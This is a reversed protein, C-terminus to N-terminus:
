SDPNDEEGSADEDDISGSRNNGTGKKKQTGFPCLIGQAILNLIHSFCRIWHIEGKFRPWKLKKLEKVTVENNSANNSVIGCIRDQIGFKEVVLRVVNALYDGTHRQLLQVFDLPMAELEFKGTEEIENLRYIVVGLIDFVNPSQLESRYQDQIASYLLHIDKSVAKSLPLNRLVVPHLLAKHSPNTLASFPRAAEACWVACLQPVEKPNIDRTGTVGLAALTQNQETKHLKRLCNLAHKLLNSCSSDTTPRSIKTGCMRCPYAIM